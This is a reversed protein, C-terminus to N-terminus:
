IIVVRELTQSGDAAVQHRWQRDEKAQHGEVQRITQIARVKQLAQSEDEVFSAM